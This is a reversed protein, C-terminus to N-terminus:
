AGLTWLFETPVHQVLAMKTDDDGFIALAVDKSVQKLFVMNLYKIFDKMTKKRLGDLNQVLARASAENEEPWVVPAVSPDMNM